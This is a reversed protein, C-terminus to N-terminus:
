GTEPDVEFPPLQIADPVTGAPQAELEIAHPLHVIRGGRSVEIPELRSCDVLVPSGDGAGPDPLLAVARLAGSRHLLGRLLVGVGDLDGVTAVVDIIEDENHGADAM